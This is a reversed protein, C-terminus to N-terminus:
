EQPNTQSQLYQQHKATKRHGALFNRCVVSGCECEIKEREREYYKDGHKELRTKRYQKYREPYLERLKRESKKQM